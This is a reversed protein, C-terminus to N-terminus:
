ELYFVLDFPQEKEGFLIFLPIDVLTNDGFRVPEVPKETAGQRVTVKKPALSKGVMIQYRVSSLFLQTIKRGMEDMGADGAPKADGGKKEGEKKMPEFHFVLQKKDALYRPIMPFEEKKFSEHPFAAFKPVTFSLDLGSDYDTKVEKMQLDKVLGKLQATLDGKKSDVTSALSKDKGGAPQGKQEQELAKSFRFLWRVSLSGDDRLDLLHNIQFCGSLFLLPVMSLALTRLPRSVATLIRASQRPM